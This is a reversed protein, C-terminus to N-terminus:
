PWPVNIGDVIGDLTSRRLKPTAAFRPWPFRHWVLEWIWDAAAPAIGQEVYISCGDLVVTDYTISHPPPTTRARLLGAKDAWLYLTGGRERLAAATKPSMLIRSSEEPESM